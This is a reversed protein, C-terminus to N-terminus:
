NIEWGNFFTNNGLFCKAEEEEMLGGVSVKKIRQLERRPFTFPIFLAANSIFQWLHKQM